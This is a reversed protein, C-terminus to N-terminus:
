VKSPIHEVMNVFMLPVVGASASFIAFSLSVVPIWEFAMVDFGVSRLYFYVAFTFMGIASGLLSLILLAKRGLIDSLATTCFNGILQLVALSISSINPNISKAGAEKFIIAAYTTFALHGTLHVM